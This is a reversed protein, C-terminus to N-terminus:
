TSFSYAFTGELMGNAGEPILLFGGEAAPFVQKPEEMPGSGQCSVIGLAELWALGKPSFLKWTLNLFCAQAM